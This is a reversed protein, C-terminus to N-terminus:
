NALNCHQGFTCIITVIPKGLLTSTVGPQSMTSWALSVRSLSQVEVTVTATGYMWDNYAECTYKGADSLEVSQESYSQMKSIERENQGAPTFNWKFNLIGDQQNTTCLLSLIYGEDLPMSYGTIM